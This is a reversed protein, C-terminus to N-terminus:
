DLARHGNNVSGALHLTGDSFRQRYDGAVVQGADTTFIPTFTADRDPAIAWYFPTAVHVGLNGGFGISPPLLGSRRKVSPDPHALYPTYLVPFGGLELVADRYEITQTEKDHVIEEARIQWLPPRTPDSRCLDCPSYVGRRIEIREGAIRRGTNGALRSRDSLLIRIDKIFGDEFHNELEVFDAFLIEGTPELLSVHGSATLTDTNRNYTVTDALLTRMGESIQVHGKAVILGLVEDTEVEDASFLIPASPRASRRGHEGPPAQAKPPPTQASAPLPGAALTLTLAALALVGAAHLGGRM